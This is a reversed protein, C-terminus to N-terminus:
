LWRVCQYSFCSYLILIRTKVVFRNYLLLLQHSQVFSLCSDKEDYELVYVLCFLTLFLNNVSAVNRDIIMLIGLISKTEM